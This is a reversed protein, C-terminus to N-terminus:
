AIAWIRQDRNATMADLIQMERQMVDRNSVNDVYKLYSRGGYVNYGDVTRYRLFWQTDKDLVAARLKALHSSDTSATASTTASRRTARSESTERSRSSFLAQDIIGALMKDGFENLHVGNITWPKDSQSFKERTVTFLDVFMVKNTKAVEAMAETYLKLRENNERGDSLNRNHLDEHAIPSFLFLRPPSKGNYKQGLTHKLFQDLDKKFKDLGESGAFSENYGFFAFIVDAKTRTLWEDSSGFGESRLRITVEDGNFGLNRFVLHHEPFRSQIVTELWGHHQMRDALANGILCIHDGPHIDLVGAHVRTVILLGVLAIIRTM